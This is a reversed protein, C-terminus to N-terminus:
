EIKQVVAVCVILSKGGCFALWLHLNPNQEVKAAFQHGYFNPLFTFSQFQTQPPSTGLAVQGCLLGFIKTCWQKAELNDTAM